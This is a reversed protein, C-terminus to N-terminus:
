LKKTGLAKVEAALSKVQAELSANRTKLDENSARLVALEESPKGSSEASNLWDIAKHHNEEVDTWEFVRYGNGQRRSKFVGHDALIRVYQDPVGLFDAVEKVYM